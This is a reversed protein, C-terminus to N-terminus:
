SQSYFIGAHGKARYIPSSHDVEALQEM